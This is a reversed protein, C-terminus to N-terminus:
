DELNVEIGVVVLSNIKRGIIIQNDDLKKIFILYTIQQIDICLNIM